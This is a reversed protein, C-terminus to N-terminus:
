HADESSLSRPLSATIGRGFLSTMSCLYITYSLIPAGWIGMTLRLSRVSTQEKETLASSDLSRIRDLVSPTAVQSSVTAMTSEVETVGAPLSVVQAANLVAFRTKPYLLVEAEGVNVVSFCM